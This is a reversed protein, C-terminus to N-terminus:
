DEKKRRRRDHPSPSDRIIYNKKMIEIVNLAKDYLSSQQLPQFKSFCCQSTVQRWQCEKGTRKAAVGALSCRGRPSKSLEKRLTLWV